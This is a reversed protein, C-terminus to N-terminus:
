VPPYRQHAPDIFTIYYIASAAPSCIILHLISCKSCFNTIICVFEGRIEFWSLPMYLILFGLSYWSMEIILHSRFPILQIVYTTSVPVSLLGFLIASFLIILWSLFSSHSWSRFMHYMM